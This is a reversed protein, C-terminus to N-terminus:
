VVCLSSYAAIIFVIILSVRMLDESSLAEGGEVGETPLPRDGSVLRFPFKSEAMKRVPGFKVITYDINAAAMTACASEFTVGEGSEDSAVYVAFVVRKIGVKAAISAYTPLEASTVNFSLWAEIGSLASELSADKDVGTSVVAFKLIDILGSYVTDPSVIRKRAFKLDDVVTTIESWKGTKFLKSLTFPEAFNNEKSVFGSVALSKYSVEESLDSEVEDSLRVSSKSAPIRSNFSIGRFASTITLILAFILIRQM